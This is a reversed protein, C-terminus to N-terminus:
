RGGNSPLATLESGFTDTVLKLKLALSALSTEFPPRSRAASGALM